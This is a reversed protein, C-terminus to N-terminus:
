FKKQYFHCYPLKGTKQYYKQHYDEAPYFAGAPTLKTAVNFGKSILIAILKESIIKQEETTYFIESRYQEGVDPGQRNIQEPDHIEFFIKCLDEFSVISNDFVVKVAEAHGTNEYCVQKYTPNELYGGTYGVETSIVGKM